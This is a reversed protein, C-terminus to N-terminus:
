KPKIRQILNMNFHVHLDPYLYLSMCYLLDLQYLLCSRSRTTCAACFKSSNIDPDLRSLLILKVFEPLTLQVWWSVLSAVTLSVAGCIVCHVPLVDQTTLALDGGELGGKNITYAPAPPTAQLPDPVPRRHTPVSSPLSLALV